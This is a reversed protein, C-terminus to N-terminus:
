STGCTARGDLALAQCWVLADGMSTTVRAATRAWPALGTKPNNRSCSCPTATSSPSAPPRTGARTPFALSMARRNSRPAGRPPGSACPWRSTWSRSLTTCSTSTARGSPRPRLQAPARGHGTGTEVVSTELHVPGGARLLPAPLLRDLCEGILQRYQDNGEEAVGALLPVAFVIVRGNQVVAGHGSAKYPPTYSHGSFHDYAREFYPYVLEVLTQATAAGGGHARACLGGRPSPRVGPRTPHAM